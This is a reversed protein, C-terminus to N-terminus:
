QLLESMKQILALTLQCDATANHTKAVEIKQQRCAKELSQWNYSHRRTNWQGYYAAYTKMACSWYKARPMPLNRRQCVGKLIGEDFSANYAIAVQGALKASLTSYINKFDPADAVMADTIGHVRTADPPISGVPKVLTDMLIQGQMDILGIQVIEADHFGTTELDIIVAHQKLMDQAWQIAKHKATPHNLM